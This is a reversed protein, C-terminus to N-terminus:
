IEKMNVKKKDMISQVMHFSKGIEFDKEFDCGKTFYLLSKHVENGFPIEKGEM